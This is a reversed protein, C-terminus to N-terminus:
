LEDLLDKARRAKIKGEKALKLNEIAEKFEEVFVNKRKLAEFEKLDHMIKEWDSIPLMIGSKRGKKDTIYQLEM